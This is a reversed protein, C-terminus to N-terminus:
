PHVARPVTRHMYSGSEQYKPFHFYKLLYLSPMSHPPKLNINILLIFTFIPLTSLVLTLFHYRALHLLCSPHLHYNWGMRLMTYHSPAYLFTAAAYLLWSLTVTQTSLVVYQCWPLFTNINSILRQPENLFENLYPTVSATLPTSVIEIILTVLPHFFNLLWDTELQSLAKGACSLHSYAECTISIAFTVTPTSNLLLSTISLNVSTIVNSLNCHNPWFQLFLHCHCPSAHQKTAFSIILLYVLSYM